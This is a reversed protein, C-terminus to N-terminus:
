FNFFCFFFFVFFFFFLLFCFMGSSNNKTPKMKVVTDNMTQVSQQNNKFMEEFKGEDVVKKVVNMETISEDLKGLSMGIGVLDSPNSVQFKTYL